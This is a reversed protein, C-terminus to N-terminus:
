SARWREIVEAVVESAARAETSVETHAAAAYRDRREALLVGLRHGPQGGELLPRGGLRGIRDELTEPSATLWLVLGSSRMREINEDDLVAGGGTAVVAPGADAASAIMRRELARFSEEGDEEWLDPISRASVSTILLDTDIFSLDLAAAVAEGVTTKGSGMMGILWLVM